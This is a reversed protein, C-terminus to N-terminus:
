KQILGWVEICADSNWVMVVQITTGANAPDVGTKAL